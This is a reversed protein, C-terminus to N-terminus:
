PLPSSIPPAERKLTAAMDILVKPLQIAAKLHADTIGQERLAAVFTNVTSNNTRRLVANIKALLETYAFPKKLYDDAGMELARVRSLDDFLASVIIIPVKSSKRIEHLVDFGDIDPLNLELLVIDPDESKLLDAAENGKHTSPIHSGPWRISVCMKITLIAEPDGDVVLVKITKLERAGKKCLVVLAERAYKLLKKLFFGEVPNASPPPPLNGAIPTQLM